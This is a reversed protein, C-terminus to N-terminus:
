GKGCVCPATGTVTRGCQACKAKTEAIPPPPPRLFGLLGGPRFLNGIMSVAVMLLLFLVVIKIM